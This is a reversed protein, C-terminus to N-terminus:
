DKAKERERGIENRERKRFEDVGIDEPNSKERTM